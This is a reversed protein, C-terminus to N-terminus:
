VSWLYIFRLLTLFTLYVYFTLFLLTSLFSEMHSHNMRKVNSSLKVPAHM